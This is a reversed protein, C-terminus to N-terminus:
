FPLDGGTQPADQPPGQDPSKETYKTGDENCPSLKCSFFKKVAGSTKDTWDKVWAGLSFWIAKHCHPCVLNCPSKYPSSYDPHNPETKRENRWITGSNSNDYAM